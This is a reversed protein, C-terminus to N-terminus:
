PTVLKRLPVLPAASHVYLPHRPHGATTEGLRLLNLERAHVALANSAPLHLHSASAGWAAVVPVPVNWRNVMKGWADTNGPGEPDRVGVLDRPKTARLAYLNLVEIGGCGERRAFGMCRRITPDDIEADATSPNLMLWVMPASRSWCRTLTYRYLGTESFTASRVLDTEPDIFLVLTM